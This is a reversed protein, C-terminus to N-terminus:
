GEITGGALHLPNAALVARLRGQEPLRAAFSEVARELDYASVNPRPGLARAVVSVYHHVRGDSVICEWRHGDAGFSSNTVAAGIGGNARGARFSAHEIYGTIGSPVPRNSEHTPM